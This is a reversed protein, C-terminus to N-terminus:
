SAARPDPARNLASILFDAPSDLFFRDETSPPESPRSWPGLSNTALCPKSRKLTNPAYWSSATSGRSPGQRTRDRRRQHDEPLPSLWHQRRAGQRGERASAGVRRPDPELRGRGEGGGSPQPLGRCINWSISRSM